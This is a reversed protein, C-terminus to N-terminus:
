RRVVTIYTSILGAVDTDVVAEAVLSEKGIDPATVQVDKVRLQKFVLESTSNKVSVDAIGPFWLKIVPLRVTRILTLGDLDM